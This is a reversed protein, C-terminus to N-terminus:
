KVEILKGATQGFVEPTNLEFIRTSPIMFSGTHTFRLAYSGSHEGSELTHRYGFHRDDMLEERDFFTDSTVTKTETALRTNVLESGAPIFSEFIVKDRTEGLIVRYEVQVLQGIKAQSIPKMYERIEKQYKMESLRIKGMEYNKQEEAKAVEVKQYELYDYFETQVFFGEDRSLIKDASIPYKLSLDYYLRGWGTIGINLAERDTLNRIDFTNTTTKLLNKSDFSQAYAEKGGLTVRAQFNANVIEKDRSTRDAFAQLVLATEQTSGYSGDSKKARSLFRSMNDLIQSNSESDEGLLALSRVFKATAETRSNGMDPAIYAGRPDYVLNAKLITDISSKASARIQTKEINSIKAHSILRSQLLLTDLKNALSNDTRGLAKYAKLADVGDVSWSAIATIARIKEGMSYQCERETGWCGERVGKELRLKLYRVTGKILSQDVPVGLKQIEALTSLAYATLEFEAVDVNSNWFGFGWSSLRYGMLRVVYDGMMDNVTRYEWSRKTSDYYKIKETKIDYPSKLADHINKVAIHPIVASTIQELCGYPYELLNGLGTLVNGLLSPAASFTLIGRDRIGTLNLQEDLGVGSSTGIFATTEYSEGRGLMLTKQIGDESGDEARAVVSLEITGMNSREDLTGKVTFRVASSTGDDLAIEHQTPTVDAGKAQMQVTFRQRKGTRNFIVPAFETQDGTRLFRPFNEQIMVKQETTISTTGAGIQTTDTAIVAEIKWTTLNDPLKGTDIVANGNTDTLFKGTWFATDKFIGRKKKTDGGKNGEGAGWKEGNGVNKIELKEVLNMLSISVTTGLYRKMDYFFALPNKVPNGLLALVSEDVVSLAGIAGSVPKGAADKVQINVKLTEWPLYKLKEAKVEVSLKKSDPLVRIQSLARKYVPLGSPDNRGILYARLYVNPIYTALVPVEIKQGYGTIDVVQAELITNDKEVSYFIKGKSIPSKLTFIATEGPQMMTKEATLDTVSNNGSNWMSYSDTAVYSYSDSVFTSGNKGTYSARVLYEGGLKPVLETKFKGDNSSSVIKSSELTKKLEYEDYFVGDVGLKKVKNWQLQILELTVKASRVNSKVDLTVGSVPIKAGKDVWYPSTIGVYGDTVHIIHSQTGSVTKGTNPDFVEAVFTILREKKADPTGVTEVGAEMQPKPLEATYKITNTGSSDLRNRFNGLYDDNYTCVGWYRCQMFSTDTGFRYESYNKPDFYYNQARLSWNVESNAVRWGFYYTATATSEIVDGEYQHRQGGTVETKFAPKSYQEVYFNGDNVVYSGFGDTTKAAYAMIEFSYRGTNMGTTLPFSGEFNSHADVDLTLEKFLESQNNLIRIKVKKASSKVYGTAAFSRLIGQFNVTDGARYIPRDTHLYVYDRDSSDSGGYQGFDYNSTMDTNPTVIGYYLDNQAVMVGVCGNGKKTEYYQKQANFKLDKVWDSNCGPTSGSSEFRLNSPIVKGDFDTAFVITKGESQEMMLSLNTRLYAVQFDRQEPWDHKWSADASGRVLLINGPLEAGLVDTTLDIKQTTLKWKGNKLLVKKTTASECKPTYAEEYQRNLFEAYSRPTM